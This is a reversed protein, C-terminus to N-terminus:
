FSGSLYHPHLTLVKSFFSFQSIIELIQTAKSDPENLILELFLLVKKNMFMGRVMNLTMDSVTKKLLELLSASLEGGTGM